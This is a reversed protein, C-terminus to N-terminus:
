GEVVEFCPADFEAALAHRLCQGYEGLAIALSATREGVQLGYRVHYGFATQIVAIDAGDPTTTEIIKRLM